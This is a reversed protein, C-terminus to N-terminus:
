ASWPLEELAAAIREAFRRTSFREEVVTRASHAMTEALADDALMTEIGARMADPDGAPVVRATDASVYDDLYVRESVVVPRGSAMAELMAVTGSNETGRPDAEPRVPVVVCRAGAYLSKVEAPTINLRVDVNPPLSVDELNEKKAVLVVPVDLGAVAQGFTSYDRALDRGVTLVYGEKPLPTPQWWLDDVGIAATRVKAPALGAREILRERAATSIALIGDAARLSARQLSRRARGARDWASILHYSLLVIRPGRQLRAALPLLNSLPTFIIDVDRLEWPLTLERGHWTLRHVIPNAPTSRRLRSDHIVVDVGLARLHNEGLLGTDPSTGAEVEAILRARPNPYVFAVRV